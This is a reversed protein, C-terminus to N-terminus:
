TFKDFESEDESINFAFLCVFHGAFLCTVLSQIPPSHVPDCTVWEDFLCYTKGILLVLLLTEEELQETWSLALALTLQLHSSLILTLSFLLISYDNVEWEVSAIFDVALVLLQLDYCM